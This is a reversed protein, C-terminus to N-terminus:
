RYFVDQGRAIQQWDVWVPVNNVENWLAELKPDESAHDRLLTYLDRGPPPSADPVEKTPRRRQNRPLENSDPPSIRDLANLADEGLVDYSHKLPHMQEKTLHNPTWQFTYGWAHRTDENKCAFLNSWAM